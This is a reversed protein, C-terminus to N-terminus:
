EQTLNATHLVISFMELMQTLDFRRFYITWRHIVWTVLSSFMEILGFWLLLNM